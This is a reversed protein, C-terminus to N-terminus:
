TARKSSRGVMYGVALALLLIVGAVTARYSYRPSSTYRIFPQQTAPANVPTTSLCTPAFFRGDGRRAYVIYTRGTQFSRDCNTMHSTIVVQDSQTGKLIQEVHFTANTEEATGNSAVLNGVFVLDAAEFSEPPSLDVCDCAFSIATAALIIAWSGIIKTIATL